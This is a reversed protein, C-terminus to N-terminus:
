NIKNLRRIGLIKSKPYSIINVMNTQNGGLIWISNLDQNIYIGVHGQWAQNGRKLIVVDGLQVSDMNIEYGIDLWSRANLKSTREFGSKMACWNIFASCWPTEDNDIQKFGIENFYSVITVNHNTGAIEKIGYQTLAIELLKNMMNIVITTNLKRKFDEFYLHQYDLM